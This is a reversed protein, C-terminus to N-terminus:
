LKEERWKKWKLRAEEMEDVVIEEKKNKRLAKKPLKKHKMVEELPVDDTVESLFSETKVWAELLTENESRLQRNIKTLNRVRAKLKKITDQLSESDAKPYNRTNKAM